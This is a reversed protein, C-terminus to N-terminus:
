RFVADFITPSIDGSPKPRAEPSAEAQRKDVHAIWVEDMARIAAVHRPEFPWRMLRAYAEIEPYGIPNPGSAHWTRAASLACFANWLPLAGEPPVPRGGDLHAQLAKVCQRVLPDLGPMMISFDNM